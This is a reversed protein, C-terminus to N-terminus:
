ASVLLERLRMLLRFPNRRKRLRTFHDNAVVIRLQDQLRPISEIAASSPLKEASSEIGLTILLQFSILSLHLHHLLGEYRRTQYQGLGLCQKLNKLTVEITWRARYGIVADRAALDM